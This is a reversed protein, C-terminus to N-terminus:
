KKSKKTKKKTSTTKSVTKTPKNDEVVVETTEEEIEEVDEEEDNHRTFVIIVIVALTVVLIIIGIINNKKTEDKGANPDVPEPNSEVIQAGTAKVLADVVDVYKANDKQAKITNIIEENMSEGYGSFYKDGIVIFPVGKVQVGLQSGVETMFQANVQNGWVEYYKTTFIDKVRADKKLTTAVYEELEACHPCGDGYFVYMTVKDPTGSAAETTTTTKKASAFTVPMIVLLLLFLTKLFRKM